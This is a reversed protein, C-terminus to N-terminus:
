RDQAAIGLAAARASAEGRNRVDLKRLIASVHHDVTKRSLFLREAIEANRLGQAVLELVEVERATLGAPNSRTTARPGRPVGRVGRARLRRAAIAAAPSAGLRQLEAHARRLADQDDTASLALAAEYPCGLESWLQAAGAGDGDLELEFPRAAEVPGDDALGARRRWCALEGVTWAARREMALELATRSEDAVRERDGDLWAAEARALGAPGIRQLEGTPSALALAEDLPPWVEPEGARARALGLVCLAYIRPVPWARPDGIVEAASRAAEPWRAQDLELRARCAVLFLRWLELGREACYELGAEIHRTALEYDRNRLPWWVLSLHARGAHEELRAALALDRALEMLEAGEPAEALYAIVAINTLAYVLPEEDGAELATEIARTGWEMTAAADEATMAIHSLNAYAMALERGAPLEELVGLAREGVEAAEATRGVFRLLRSLSRLSDAERARDGDERWREVASAQAELGVDFESTCYCEYACRDLLDGLRAPGVGDAFRLARQYQAV